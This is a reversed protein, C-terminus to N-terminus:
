MQLSVIGLLTVNQPVPAPNKLMLLQPLCVIGGLVIHDGSEMKWLEHMPSRDKPKYGVQFIYLCLEGALM